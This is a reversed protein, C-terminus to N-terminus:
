VEFMDRDGLSSKGVFTPQHFSEGHENPDMMVATVATAATTTTPIAIGDYTDDYM